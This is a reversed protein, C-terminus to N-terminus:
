SSRAEHGSAVLAEGTASLRYLVSRGARERVLLLLERIDFGDLRRASADIFPAHVGAAARDQRMRLSEIAEWLPSCAFRTRALDDATFSLTLVM